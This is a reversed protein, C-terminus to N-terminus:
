RWQDVWRVELATTSAALMAAPLTVEYQDGSSRLAEVRVGNLTCVFEAPRGERRQTECLLAAAASRATFSELTPFAHFRV